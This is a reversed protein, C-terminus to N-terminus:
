FILMFAGQKPAVPMHIQLAYYNASAQKALFNGSEMMNPNCSRGFQISHIPFWWARYRLGNHFHLFQVPGGLTTDFQLVRHVQYLYAHCSSYTPKAEGHNLLLKLDNFKYTSDASLWLAPVITASPGFSCMCMTIHMMIIDHTQCDATMCQM